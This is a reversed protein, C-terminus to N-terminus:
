QQTTPPGNMSLVVNPNGRSEHKVQRLTDKGAKGGVSRTNGLTVRMGRRRRRRSGQAKARTPVITTSPAQAAVSDASRRLM